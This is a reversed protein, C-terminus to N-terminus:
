RQRQLAVSCSRSFGARKIADAFLRLTSSQCSLQPCRSPAEQKWGSGADGRYRCCPASSSQSWSHHMKSPAAPKSLQTKDHAQPLLLRPWSAPRCWPARISDSCQVPGMDPTNQKQEVELTGQFIRKEWLLHTQKHGPLAPSEGPFGRAGPKGPPSTSHGNSM